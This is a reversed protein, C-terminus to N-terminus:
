EIQLKQLDGEGVLRSAVGQGAVGIDATLLHVHLICCEARRLWIHPKCELESAQLCRLQALAELPRGQRLLALALNYQLPAQTHRRLSGRYSDSCLASDRDTSAAGGDNVTPAARVSGELGQRLLLVALSPKDSRLLACAANNLRSAVMGGM